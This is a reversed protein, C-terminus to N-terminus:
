EAAQIAKPSRFKHRRPQQTSWGDQGDEHLLYYLHRDASRIALQIERYHESLAATSDSGHDSPLALVPRVCRNPIRAFQVPPLSTVLAKFATNGGVATVHRAIKTELWSRTAQATRAKELSESHQLAQKKTAAATLRASHAQQRAEKRKAAAAVQDAVRALHAKAKSAKAKTRAASQEMQQKKVAAQRRAKTADVTSSAANAVATTDSWVMKPKDSSSALKAALADASVFSPIMSPTPALLLHHTVLFDWITKWTGPPHKMLLDHFKGNSIPSLTELSSLSLIPSPAQDQTFATVTKM